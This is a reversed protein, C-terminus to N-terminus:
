SAKIKDKFPSTIYALQKRPMPIVNKGYEYM